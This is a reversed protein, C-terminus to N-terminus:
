DRRRKEGFWDVVRYVCYALGAVVKIGDCLTFEQRPPPPKPKPQYKAWRAAAGKSGAISRVTHLHELRQKAYAAAEIREQQAREKEKRINEAREADNLPIVRSFKTNHTNVILDYV